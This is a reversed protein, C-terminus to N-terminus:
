ACHWRKYLVGDPVRLAKCIQQSQNAHPANLSGELSMVIPHNKQALQTSIKRHCSLDLTKCVLGSM